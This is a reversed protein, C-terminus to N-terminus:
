ALSKETEFIESESLGTVSVLSDILSMKTLNDHGSSIWRTLTSFKLPRITQPKSNYHTCIAMKVAEDKVKEIFLKSLEM